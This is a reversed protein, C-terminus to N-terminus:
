TNDIFYNEEMKEAKNRFENPEKIQKWKKYVHRQAERQTRFQIKLKCKRTHKRQICVLILAIMLPIWGPEVRKNQIFQSCDFCYKNIFIIM